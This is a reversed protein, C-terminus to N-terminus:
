ARKVAHLGLWAHVVLTAVVLGGGLFTADPPPEGLLWWVWFTGLLTELILFLAVEASPLYRTGNNLLILALPMQLLGMLALVAYTQGGLGFPQAWPLALLVSIIGGGAILPSRDMTPYRRLLTLNAGMTAAAILAFTDGLWGAGGLSGSFVVAIGLIALVIAVWTRLAVPEALFCRTFVAAFLPAGSLIVVVNAVETHMVALVFLVTGLGSLVASVFAAVPFQRLGGWRGAVAAVTTMSLAIFAGRWFVISWSDTAALRVLLSDFSLVTAGVAVMLLARRHQTATLPSNM